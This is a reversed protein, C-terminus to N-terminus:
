VVAGGSRQGRPERGGGGGGAKKLSPVLPHTNARVRELWDKQGRVRTRHLTDSVVTVGALFEFEPTQIM